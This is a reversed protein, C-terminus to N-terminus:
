FFIQLRCVNVTSTNNSNSSAVREPLPKYYPKMNLSGLLVGSNLKYNIVLSEM